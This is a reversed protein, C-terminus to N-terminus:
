PLFHLSNKLNLFFFCQPLSSYQKQFKGASKWKWRSHWSFWVCLECRQSHMERGSSRIFYYLRRFGSTWSDYMYILFFFVNILSYQHFPTLLSGFCHLHFCLSQIFIHLSPLGIIDQMNRGNSFRGTPGRPFDIGYPPYNVKALTDLNNNNGSDSLSDGFIFYCPLQPEANVWNQLNSLLLFSIHLLWWREMSSNPPYFFSLYNLHSPPSSPKSSVSCICLTYIYPLTLFVFNYPVHPLYKIQFFFIM